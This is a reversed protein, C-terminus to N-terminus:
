IEALHGLAVIEHVVAIMTIRLEPVEEHVVFGASRKERSGFVLRTEDFQKPYLHRHQYM